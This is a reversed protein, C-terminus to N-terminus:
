GLLRLPGLAGWSSFLHAAKGPAGNKRATHSLAPGNRTVPGNGTFRHTGPYLASRRTAWGKACNAFPHTREGYLRYRGLRICLPEMGRSLDMGRLVIRGRICLLAGPPGDKRAIQSLTPGKVTFVIGGLGSVFRSWEAHYTWEGYFSADGSAFCLAPHGM